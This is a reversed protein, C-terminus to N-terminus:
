FMPKRMNRNIPKHESQEVPYRRTHGKNKTDEHKDAPQPPIITGCFLCTHEMVAEAAPIPNLKGCHPCKLTTTTSM